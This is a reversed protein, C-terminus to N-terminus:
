RSQGPTIACKLIVIALGSTRRTVDDKRLAAWVLLKKPTKKCNLGPGDM